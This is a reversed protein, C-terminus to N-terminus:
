SVMWASRAVEIIDLRREEAQRARPVVFLVMMGLPGGVTSEGEARGELKM